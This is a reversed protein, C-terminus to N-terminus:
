YAGFIKRLLWETTALLLLLIIASQYNILAKYRKESHSVSSITEDNSLLKPIDFLSEVTLSSGDTQQAIRKMMGFDAALNRAELTSATVIFRGRETVQEEGIQAKAEYRYVGETMRGLNLKYRQSSRAFLYTVMKQNAENTIDITLEPQLILENSRNRLEAEVSIETGADYEDRLNLSMLSSTQNTVLYQISKAILANFFSHTALKNFAYAKWRWIGTGAIFALKRGQGTSFAILPQSTTLNKIEQFFLVSGPSDFRYSAFPTLLPPLKSRSLQEPLNFQFLSFSSNPSAFADIGSGGEDPTIHVFDQLINLSAIDANAGTILLLPTKEHQSLYQQLADLNLQGHPLQHLIALDYEQQIPPLGDRLYQLHITFRDGIASTIAEIDPHPAKALILLQQKQDVVEVFFSRNNNLLTAEGDIGSLIIKYQRIGAQKAEVLFSTTTTFTNTTVRVIKESLLSDEEFLQILMESGAANNARATLEVQFTSNILVSKNFRLDFITFDPMQLTDGLTVSIVKFPFASAAVDPQYGTNAIGDSFLLVAGVNRKYYTRQLTSFVTSLATQQDSFDVHNGARIDNGFLYEDVVFDKKLLMILSDLKRQYNNKFFVSDKSLVLSASNDHALVIVPQEISRSQQVFYPSLLLLGIISVLLFRLVLLLISLQRSYAQKPNRYYLLLAYATGTALVPIILWPSNDLIM